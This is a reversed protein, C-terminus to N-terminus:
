RHFRCFPLSPAATATCSSGEAEDEEAAAAAKEAAEEAAEEEAAERRRSTGSAVAMREARCRDGAPSAKNVSAPRGCGAWRARTSQAATRAIALSVRSM